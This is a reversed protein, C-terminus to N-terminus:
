FYREPVRIIDDPQISTLVDARRLQGNRVIIVFDENARYTYGQAAAVASLVRMGSAYPYDGPRAVEGLIYFPRYTTVSVSTRPNTLYKGARLRESIEQELQQTTLGAAPVSGILLMRITGDSQVLYPGSLEDAGLVKIGIRDGAGLRYNSVDVNPPLLPLNRGPSCGALCFIVALAAWIIGAGTKM